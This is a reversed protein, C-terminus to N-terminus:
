GQAELFQHAKKLIGRLDEHQLVALATDLGAWVQADHEESRRVEGGELRALFYTVRKTRPGGGEDVQYTTEAEFGPLFALRAQPGLEEELERRAAEELSEGPEVHGKPPAWTLHRANRLLLYEPGEGRDRFVVAGAAKVVSPLTGNKKARDDSM